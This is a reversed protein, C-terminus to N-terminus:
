VSVLRLRGLTVYIIQENVSETTTDEPPAQRRDRHSGEDDSLEGASRREVSSQVASGERVRLRDNWSDTLDRKVPMVGVAAFIVFSCMSSVVYLSCRSM